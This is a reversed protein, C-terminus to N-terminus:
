CLLTGNITRTIDSEPMPVISAFHWKIRFSRTLEDEIREICTTTIIHVWPLLHKCERHLPHGRFEPTTVLWSSACWPTRYYALAACSANALIGSHSTHPYKVNDLTSSTTLNGFDRTSRISGILLCILQHIAVKELTTISCTAGYWIQSIQSHPPLRGLRQHKSISWRTPLQM